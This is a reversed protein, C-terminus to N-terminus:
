IFWESMLYACGSMKHEQSPDWSNLISKIVALAKNKDVGEKPKLQGVDKEGLGLFFWKSILKNWENYNKEFEKPIDKEEPLHEISGWIMDEHTTDPVPIM